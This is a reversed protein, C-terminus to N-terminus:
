LRPKLGGTPLDALLAAQQIIPGLAQVFADGRTLHAECLAYDQMLGLPTVSVWGATVAWYDGGHTEDKKFAANSSALVIRSPNDDLGERALADARHSQSEELRERACSSSMHALYYGAAADHGSPVFPLNVNIVNGKLSAAAEGKRLAAVAAKVFHVSLQAANEFSEPTNARFNNYSFAIAPLGQTCACHSDGILYSVSRQNHV